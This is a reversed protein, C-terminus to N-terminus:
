FDGRQVPRERGPVRLPIPQSEVALGRSKEIRFQSSKGLIIIRDRTYMYETHYPPKTLVTH